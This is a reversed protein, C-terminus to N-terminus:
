VQVFLERLDKICFLKKAASLQYLLLFSVAMAVGETCYSM